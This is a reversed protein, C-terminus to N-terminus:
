MMVLITVLHGVSWQSGESCGRGQVPHGAQEFCLYGDMRMGTSCEDDTMLLSTAVFWCHVDTVVTRAHMYQSPM